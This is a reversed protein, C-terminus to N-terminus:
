TAGAKRTTPPMGSCCPGKAGRANGRKTAVGPGDTVWEGDAWKGPASTIPGVGNRRNRPPALLAEGTARRTRTVTSDSGGRRLAGDRWGSQSPAQPRRLALLQEAEPHRLNDPSGTRESENRGPSESVMRGIAEDIPKLADTERRGAMWAVPRRARAGAPRGGATSTQRTQVCTPDPAPATGRPGDGAGAVDFPACPNGTRREGTPKVDLTIHGIANPKSESAAM